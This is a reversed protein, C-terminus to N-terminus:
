LMEFMRSKDHRECDAVMCYYYYYYYCYCCCCGIITMIIKDVNITVIIANLITRKLGQVAQENLNKFMTKQIQAYNAVIIIIIIIIIIDDIIIEDSM